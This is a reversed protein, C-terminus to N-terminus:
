GHRYRGAKLDCGDWGLTQTVEGPSRSRTVIVAIYTGERYNIRQQALLITFGNQWIVQPCLTDLAVDFKGGAWRPGDKWAPLLYRVLNIADRRARAVRSKPARPGFVINGEVTYIRSGKTKITVEMPDIDVHGCRDGEVEGQCLGLKIVDRFIAGKTRDMPAALPKALADGTVVGLCVAAVLIRWGVPFHAMAMQGECM